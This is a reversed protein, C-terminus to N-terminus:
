FWSHSPPGARIFHLAPRRRATMNLAISEDMSVVCVVETRAWDAEWDLVDLVGYAEIEGCVAASSRSKKAAM